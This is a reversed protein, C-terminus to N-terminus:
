KSVCMGLAHETSLNARSTTLGAAKASCAFGHSTKATGARIQSFAIELHQWEYQGFPENWENGVTEADEAYTEWGGTKTLLSAFVFATVAAPATREPTAAPPTEMNVIIAPQASETPEAVESLAPTDAQAPPQAQPSHKKECSALLLASLTITLLLTTHKM